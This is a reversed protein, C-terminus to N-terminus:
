CKEDHFIWSMKSPDQHISSMITAANDPPRKKEAASAMMSILSQSVGLVTMEPKWDSYLINLCIKGDSYIHEHKPVPRLFRVKPPSTPYSRDFQFQLKYREGEYLSGPAGTLEVVWERLQAPPMVRVLPDRDKGRLQVLQAVLRRAWPTGLDAARKGGAAMREATVEAFKESLGFAVLQQAQASLLRGSGGGGGVDDAEDAPAAPKAREGLLSRLRSKAAAPPTAEAPEAASTDDGGGTIEEDPEDDEQEVARARVAPAATAAPAAPAALMADMGLLKLCLRLLASVLSRAMVVLGGGRAGAAAAVADEGEDALQGDGDRAPLKPVPAKMRALAVKSAGAKSAGAKSVRTTPERLAADAPHAATFGACALLVLVLQWTMRRPAVMM